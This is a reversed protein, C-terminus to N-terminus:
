MQLIFVALGGAKGSAGLCPFVTEKSRQCKSLSLHHWEDIGLYSAIKEKLLKKISRLSLGGIYEFNGVTRQSGHDPEFFPVKQAVCFLCPSRQSGLILSSTPLSESDPRGNKQSTGQALKWRGHMEIEWSSFHPYYIAGFKCTTICSPHFILPLWLLPM